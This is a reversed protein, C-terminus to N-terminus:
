GRTSSSAASAELLSSRKKGGSGEHPSFGPLQLEFSTGEDVESQVTVSGGHAEAIAKVIALGLGTGGDRGRRTGSVRSFRDFIRPLEEEPIGDGTDSVEIVAHGHATRVALSIADSEGTFRVANEILADLCHGLREEDGILSGDVDVDVRWQRSAVATWRRTAELILPGLDVQTRTLFAPHDAAALILLREAIRSLRDLQSVVIRADEAAQEGSYNARILEAHGRAVSIPTRLEHSADRVFNRESEMRLERERRAEAVAAQRREVHWVIVLFMLAMLPVEATEDLGAGADAVVWALATGSTICVALLAVLTTGLSWLRYSYVLTLSIWILHFPITEGVELSVILLVNAIAFLGWAAELWHKRLRSRTAWV